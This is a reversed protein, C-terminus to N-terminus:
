TLEFYRHVGLKYIGLSIVLLNELTDGWNSVTVQVESIYHM